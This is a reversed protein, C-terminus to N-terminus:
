GQRPRLRAQDPSTGVQSAAARALEAVRPWASVEGARGFFVLVAVVTEGALVPVGLAGVLGARRAASPRCFLPDNRVDAVFVAQKSGLVRGPLGFEPMFSLTETPRRFPELSPDSRYWAPLLTCAGDPCPSWAEAYPWGAQECVEQLIQQLETLAPGTAVPEAVVPEPSRPGGTAGPEAEMLGGTSHSGRRLLQDHNIPYSAWTGAEALRESGQNLIAHKRALVIRTSGEGRVVSLCEALAGQRHGTVGNASTPLATLSPDLPHRWAGGM